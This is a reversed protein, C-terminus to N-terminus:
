RSAGLLRRYGFVLDTVDLRLASTFRHHAAHYSYRPNCNCLRSQIKLISPFTMDIQGFNMRSHSVYLVVSYHVPHQALFV